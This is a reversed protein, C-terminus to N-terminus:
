DDGCAAAGILEVSKARPGAPLNLLDFRVRQGCRLVGKVVANEHVFVEAGDKDSVIFGFKKVANFFKVMGTGTM